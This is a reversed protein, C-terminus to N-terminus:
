DNYYDILYKDYDIPLNNNDKINIKTFASVNNDFLSIANKVKAEIKALNTFNDNNYEQHSFNQLKNKIFTSDGFYSLHWGGNSIIYDNIKRRIFYVYFDKIYM